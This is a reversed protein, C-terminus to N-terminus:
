KILAMTPRLSALLCLSAWAERRDGYTQSVHGVRACLWASQEFLRTATSVTQLIKRSELHFDGFAQSDPAAGPPLSCSLHLPGLSDKQTLQAALSGLPILGWTRASASQM